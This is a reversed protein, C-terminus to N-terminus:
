AFGPVAEPVLQAGLAVIMADAQIREGDVDAARAAPDIATITGQRVTIGFKSLASLPRSGAEVTSQGTLVWNKHLGMMFHARREVLIIEDEPPLSQRLAHAAAIGGFGGGLILIRNM